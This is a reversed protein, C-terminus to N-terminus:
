GGGLIPRVTSLNSSAAQKTFTAVGDSSALGVSGPTSDETLTSNSSSIVSYLVLVEGSLQDRFIAVVDVWKVSGGGSARKNVRM